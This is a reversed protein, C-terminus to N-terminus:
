QKMMLSWMTICEKCRKKVARGVIDPPTEREDRIGSAVSHGRVSDM